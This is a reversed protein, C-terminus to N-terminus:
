IIMLGMMPVCVCAGQELSCAYIVYLWLVYYLLFCLVTLKRMILKGRSTVCDLFVGLVKHYGFLSEEVIEIDTHPQLKWNIHVIHVHQPLLM